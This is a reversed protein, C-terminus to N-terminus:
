IRELHHITVEEGDFVAFSQSIFWEGTNIYRSKENLAVNLALHRHGFIFFDYNKGEALTKQAYLYILENELGNFSNLLGRRKRSNISWSQGFPIGWFPHLSGYLWRLLRNGFMFHLVGAFKSELSVDHGHGILFRKGNITFETPKRYIQINMECTLYNRIWQDHNGAFFHIAIGNDSLEALKGLLRVFGRPVVYRYEFWFDFIDGLLFLAAADSKINDLWRVFNLERRRSDEDPTITLHLDSTFYIKKNTPLFNV